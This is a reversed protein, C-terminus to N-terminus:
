KNKRVKFIIQYFPFLIIHIAAFLLVVNFFPTEYFRFWETFIEKELIENGFNGFEFDTVFPTGDVIMLILNLIIFFGIQILWARM